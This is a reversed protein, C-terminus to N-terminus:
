PSGSAPLSNQLLSNKPSLLNKPSSTLSSDSLSGYPSPLRPTNYGVPGAWPSPPGRRSSNGLPRATPLANLGPSPNSMTGPPSFGQGQFVQSIAPSSTSQFPNVVSTASEFPNTGTELSVPSSWLTGPSTGPPAFPNVASPAADFPRDGSPQPALAGTQSAGPMPEPRNNSSRRSRNQTQGSLLPSYKKNLGIRTGAGSVKYGGYARPAVNQGLKAKRPKPRFPEAAIAPNAFAIIM